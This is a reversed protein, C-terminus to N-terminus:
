NATRRAAFLCCVLQRHCPFLKWLWSEGEEAKCRMVCALSSMSSLFNLIVPTQPCRQRLLGLTSRIPLSTPHTWPYPLRQWNPSHSPPRAADELPMRRTSKARRRDGEDEGSISFSVWSPSSPWAESSVVRSPPWQLRLAAPVTTPAMTTEMKALQTRAIGPTPQHTLSREM